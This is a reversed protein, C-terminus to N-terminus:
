SPSPAASRVYGDSVADLLAEVELVALHVIVRTFLSEERAAEAAELYEARRRALEIVFSSLQGQYRQTARDLFSAVVYDDEGTLLLPRGDVVVLNLDPGSRGSGFQRPRRPTWTARVMAFAHRAESRLTGLVGWSLSTIPEVGGEATIMPIAAAMVRRSRLGVRELGARTTAADVLQGVDRLHGHPVFAPPSNSTWLLLDTRTAVWVGGQADVAVQGDDIAGMPLEYRRFTEGADPTDYVADSALVVLRESSPRAASIEGGGLVRVFGDSLDRLMSTARDAESEQDIWELVPLQGKWVIRAKGAEPLDRFTWTPDAEVDALLAHRLRGEGGRRWGDEADWVRRRRIEQLRVEADLLWDEKSWGVLGPQAAWSMGSDRSVWLEGAVDFVALTTPDTPHASLSVIDASGPPTRFRFHGDEGPSANATNLWFAVVWWGTM